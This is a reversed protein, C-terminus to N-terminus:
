VGQPFSRAPTPALRGCQYKCGPRRSSRAGTCPCFRDGREHEGFNPSYCIAQSRTLHWLFWLHHLGTDWPELSRNITSPASPNPVAQRVAEVIAKLREGRRWVMHDKGIGGNGRFRMSVKQALPRFIFEAQGAWVAFVAAHHWRYEAYQPRSAEHLTAVVDIDGM